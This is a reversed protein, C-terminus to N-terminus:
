RNKIMYIDSLGNGYSYTKGVLVFGSDDLQTVDYAQDWDSGGYTKQFLPTGNIDTKILYFDFGGNGFSNTYGGIAYGSDSTLVLSEGWDSGPGGYNYSWKFNGISDVKLLFADADGSLFSSSSGTVIYGTDLDQKIDKGYDYGDNGYSKIFNINQSYSSLWGLVSIVFLVRRM